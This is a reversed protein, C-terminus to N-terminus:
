KLWRSLDRDILEGLKLIDDRYLKIMKQRTKPKIKLTNKDKFFNVIKETYRIGITNLLIPRLTKKISHNPDNLFKKFDTNIEIESVNHKESIDPEFSDDVGLFEFLYKLTKRTDQEFDEYFIIRVEKFADLYAKVQEYYMGTSIYDFGWWWKEELRKSITEPEIAKEFTLAELNDRVHHKYNSFARDIPNRLIILIKIDSPLYKKIREISNKYFYLYAVCVEGIAIEKSANEYITLYDEWNEIINSGYESGEGSYFTKSIGAFFFSEKNEPLYIEPHQKLYYHISTTGSKAAGVVIFNPARNM